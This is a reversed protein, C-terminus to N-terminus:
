KRAGAVQASAEAQATDLLLELVLKLQDGRTDLDKRYAVDLRGVLDKADELPFRNLLERLNQQGEFKIKAILDGDTESLLVTLEEIESSYIVPVGAEVAEDFVNPHGEHDSNLVILKARSLNLRGFAVAGNLFVLDEIEFKRVLNFLNEYEPGSGVINLPVGKGPLSSQSYATILEAVRKSEHLRGLYVVGPPAFLGPTEESKSNRLNPLWFTRVTPFRLRLDEAGHRSNALLLSALPYSILRMEHLVEPVVQRCFDNREVVVVPAIGYLSLISVVATKPLFSLCLDPQRKRALKRLGLSMLGASPHAQFYGIVLSQHAPALAPVKLASYAWRGFLNLGTRRLPMIKSLLWAPSLLFGVLRFTRRMLLIKKVPSDSIFWFARRTDNMDTLVLEVDFGEVQLREALLLAQKQAGGLGLNPLAVWILPKNRAM